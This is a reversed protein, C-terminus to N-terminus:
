FGSIQKRDKYSHRKQFAIYIPDYVIYGKM